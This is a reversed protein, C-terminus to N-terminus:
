SRSWKVGQGTITVVDYATVYISEAGCVRGYAVEAAANSPVQRQQSLLELGHARDVNGFLTQFYGLTFTGREFVHGKPSEIKRGIMGFEVFEIKRDADVCQKLGRQSFSAGCQFRDRLVQLRLSM